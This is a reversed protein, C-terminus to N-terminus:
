RRRVYVYQPGEDSPDDSDIPGAFVREYGSKELARWSRRNAQAVTVVVCAADPYRELTDSTFTDVLRTGLGVGTLEVAGILYDIGAAAEIGLAEAWRPYDDVLYRQVFGVPRGDLEVVFVETPDTGDVAPGYRAAVADLAPDDRWWPAVHPAATWGALLPFDARQLPRFRLPAPPPM